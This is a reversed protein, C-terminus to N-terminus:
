PGTPSGDSRQAPESCDTPALRDLRRLAADAAQPDATLLALTTGKRPQIVMRCRGRGAPVLVTLVFDCLVGLGFVAAGFGVLAPSGARAGDTVLSVGLYTGLALALMAVYLALRPFRVERVARALNATPIHTEGSRLTRGWLRASWALTLGSPGVRLEAPRRWRLLLRALLRLVWRVLLLGTAAWLVFWVSRMPAPVLEGAVRAEGGQATGGTREALPVSPASTGADGLKVVACLGPDALREGLAARATRARRSPSAALALAAGLGLVRVSAAAAPADAEVVVEGLAAWLREAPGTWDDDVAATPVLATHAALWGLQQALARAQEPGSPPSQAIGRAVLAGLLLRAPGDADAPHTLLELANGLPTEGDDHGLGAEALIEELGDSLRARQEDAAALAVTHVVRALEDARPHAALADLVAPLAEPENM